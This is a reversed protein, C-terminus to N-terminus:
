KKKGNNTKGYGFKIHGNILDDINNFDLWFDGPIYTRAYFSVDPNCTSLMSLEKTCSTSIHCQGTSFYEISICGPYAICKLKCTELSVSVFSADNEGSCCQNGVEEFNSTYSIINGEAINSIHLDASGMQYKDTKDMPNVRYMEVTGSTMLIELYSAYNIDKFPYFRISIIDNNDTLVNTNDSTITFFFIKEKLASTSSLLKYEAGFYDKNIVHKNYCLPQSIEEQDCYSGKQDRIFEVAVLSIFDTEVGTKGEISMTEIEIFFQNVEGHVAIQAANTGLYNSGGFVAYNDTTFPESWYIKYKGDTTTEIKWVGENSFIDNSDIGNFTVYKITWDPISVKPYGIMASIYDSSGYNDRYDAPVLYSGTCTAKYELKEIIINEINVNAAPYFPNGGYCKINTLSLLPNYFPDVHVVIEDNIKITLVNLTVIYEISYKKGIQLPGGRNWQNNNNEKSSWTLHFGNTQSNASLWVGPNRSYDINGCSFISAWGASFANITVDFSYRMNAAINITTLYKSKTAVFNTTQKWLLTSCAQRSTDACLPYALLDEDTCARAKYKYEYTDDLRVCQNYYVGNPLPYVGETSSPENPAWQPNAATGDHNQWRRYCGGFPLSKYCLYEIGTHCGDSTSDDVKGCLDKALEREEASHISIIQGGQGNCYSEAASHTGANLGAFIRKNIPVKSTTKIETTTISNHSDHVVNNGYIGVIAGSQGRINSTVGIVVNADSLAEEFKLAHGTNDEVVMQINKSNYIENTVGNFTVMSMDFFNVTAVISIYDSDEPTWVNIGPKIVNIIVYYENIGRINNLQDNNGGIQAFGYGHKVNSNIFIGYDHNLFPTEWFVQYEGKSLRVVKTVGKQQYINCVNGLAGCSGERGDFTVYKTSDCETRDIEQENSFTIDEYLKKTDGTGKGDCVYERQADYGFYVDVNVGVNAGHIFRCWTSPVLHIGGTAGGNGCAQYIGTPFDKLVGNAFCSNRLRSKAKTTGYWNDLNSTSSYLLTNSDLTYSMEKLNNLAMIPNECVKAYVAYEDFQPNTVDINSPVIKASIAYKAMQNLIIDDYPYNWVGPNGETCGLSKVWGINMDTYAEKVTSEFTLYDLVEAYVEIRMSKWQTYKTPIFRLYRCEIKAEFSSISVDYPDNNINGTYIGINTFTIGDNSIQLKYETVRQGNYTGARPKTGVANISMIRSLDVQLYSNINSTSAACWGNNASFPAINTCSGHTDSSSFATDPITSLLPISSMTPVAVCKTPSCITNQYASLIPSTLYLIIFLIM